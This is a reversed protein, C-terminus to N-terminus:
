RPSRIAGSTQRCIPLASKRMSIFRAAGCRSRCCRYRMRSLAEPSKLQLSAESCYGLLALPSIISKQEAVHARVQGNLEATRTWGCIQLASYASAAFAYLHDPQIALAQDHSALAEEFRKLRQLATGRSYLAEAHDPKIALAKDYSALADV